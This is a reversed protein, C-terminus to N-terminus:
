PKEEGEIIGTKLFYLSITLYTAILLASLDLSREYM